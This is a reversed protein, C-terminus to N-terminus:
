KEMQTGHHLDCYRPPLESVILQNVDLQCYSFKRNQNQIQHTNDRRQDCHDHSFRDQNVQQHNITELTTFGRVISLALQAMSNNGALNQSDLVNNNSSNFDIMSHKSCFLNNQIRNCLADSAFLCESLLHGSTSGNLEIQIPEVNLSAKESHQNSFWAVPKSNVLADEYRPPDDFYSSITCVTFRRQQEPSDESISRGRPHM